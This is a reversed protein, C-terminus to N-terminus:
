LSGEAGTRDIRPLCRVNLSEPGYLPWALPARGGALEFSETAALLEQLATLMEVRAAAQGACKHAGHGFAIHPNPDRDLVFEDAREFVAEDRNASSLVLAVQQGAAISQGGLSVPCTATRAFGQNPAYLRLFEEIAPKVLEPQARLQAQLRQDAALHGIASAIAATPAVHAAILLQRLSGAVFEDDLPHGEIELELLASVMDRRPDLPTQRRAAVIKRCRAYLYQNEEEAVAQLRHGQAWEFRESHANLELAQAEDVGIFLGFVGATLPSTLGSIIEGGGTAVLGTVLRRALDRIQAGLTAVHEDSFVANLPRRYLPHEPPDYHLPARRGSVPNAPVTIGQSSTFQKPQRSVRKVDDYRTLAWFNWRAGRAVPASQRLRKWTPHPNESFEPDLPDFDFELEHDSESQSSGSGM